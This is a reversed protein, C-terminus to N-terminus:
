FMNKANRDTQRDCDANHVISQRDASIGFSGIDNEDKGSRKVQFVDSLDVNKNVKKMMHDVLEKKTLPEKAHLSLYDLIEEETQSASQCEAANNKEFVRFRGVMDSDGLYVEGTTGKNAKINNRCIKKFLKSPLLTAVHYGIFGAVGTVLTKM